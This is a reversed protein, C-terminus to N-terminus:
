LNRLDDLRKHMDDVENKQAASEKGKIGGQGVVMGDGVEMGHADRM